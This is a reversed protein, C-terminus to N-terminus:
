YTPALKTMIVVKGLLSNVSSFSERVSALRKFATITMRTLHDKKKRQAMAKVANNQLAPDTNKHNRKKEKRKKKKFVRNVHPHKNQM